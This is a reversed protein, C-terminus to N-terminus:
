MNWIDNDDAYRMEALGVPEVPVPAVPVPATATPRWMPVSVWPEGYANRTYCENIRREIQQKPDGVCASQWAWDQPHTSAALFIIPSNFKMATGKGEVQAPFKDTIDLFKQLGINVLSKDIEDFFMIPQNQYGDFWKGGPHKYVQDETFGKEEAWDYIQTTKGIGAGGYYAIVQPPVRRSRHKMKAYLLARIGRDNTLIKHPYKEVVQDFTAGGVIFDALEKLDSRKGQGV